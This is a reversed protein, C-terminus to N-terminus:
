DFPLSSKTIGTAEGAGLALRRPLSYLAAQNSLKFSSRHELAM